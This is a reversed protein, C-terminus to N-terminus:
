TRVRVSIIAVVVGVYAFQNEHYSVRAEVVGVPVEVLPQEVIGALEPTVPALFGRAPAVAFVVAVAVAAGPSTDEAADIIMQEAADVPNLFSAATSM